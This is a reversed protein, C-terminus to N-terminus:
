EVAQYYVADDRDTISQRVLESKGLRRRGYLVVFEASESNYCDTLQKLEATRDVFDEM